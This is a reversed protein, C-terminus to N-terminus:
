QRDQEGWVQLVTATPYPSGVLSGGCTLAAQDWRQDHNEKLCLGSILALIFHQNWQLSVNHIGPELSSQWLEKKDM